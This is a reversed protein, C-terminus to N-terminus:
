TTLILHNCSDWRNRYAHTCKGNYLNTANLNSMTFFQLLDDLGYNTSVGMGGPQGPLSYDNITLSVFLSFPIFWIMVLFFGLIQSFEFNQSTTHNNDYDHDYYDGNRSKYGGNNSTIFYDFWVMHSAVFAILVLATQVSFLQILPYRQLALLYFLHSIAGVLCCYFPIGDLYVVLHLAMVVYVSLKVIKGAFTPYEECLESIMYLGSSLALALLILAVLAATHTLGWLVYGGFLPM